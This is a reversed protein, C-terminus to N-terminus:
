WSESRTRLDCSTNSRAPTSTMACRNWRPTTTTTTSLRIKIGQERLQRGNRFESTHILLRKYVKRDVINPLRPKQSGVGTVMVLHKAVTRREGHPTTFVITWEKRKTDYRTDTINALTVIDLQLEEIYRCLQSALDDKSLLHPAAFEKAYEIFKM